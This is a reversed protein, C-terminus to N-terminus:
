TLQDRYWEVTRALGAKTSVLVRYGLLDQAKRIEAQSHRVDEPRAPAFVVRAASGVGALEALTRALENVTFTSGCAINFVEGATAPAQAALINAEVVNEVYTFDRSQSGDGFVTLSRNQLLALIFKPVVAAYLSAPDQRPGFVNFYRLSVTELAYVHHFVRCYLEGALKSVAYPSRPNPALDEGKSPAPADGYVSSSSAYIVRKVGAKRAAILVNLTGDVNVSNTFAPDEVSRQVSGVAAEHFVFSVGAMVESLLKPDRVDGEVVEIRSGFSEVNEKKGSFFNDLIRVRCGAAALREAIHSGIFGAGGTILCIGPLAGFAPDSFTSTKV